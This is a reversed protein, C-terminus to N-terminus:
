VFPPCNKPVLTSLLYSTITHGNKSIIGDMWGTAPNPSSYRTDYIAQKCGYVSRFSLMCCSFVNWPIESNLVELGYNKLNWENISEPSHFTVSRHKNECRWQKTSPRGGVKPRFLLDLLVWPCPQITWSFPHLPSAFFFLDRCFALALVFTMMRVLPNKPPPWKKVLRM